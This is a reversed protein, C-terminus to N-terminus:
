NKIQHFKILDKFIRKIASKLQSNKYEEHSAEGATNKLHSEYDTVQIEFPYFFRIDRSLQSLDMKLVKKVLENESDMSKAIKRLGTMQKVIPNRYVILQRCTFQVSRYEQSSHINKKNEHSNESPKESHDNSEKSSNERDITCKKIEQEARALFHGESWNERMCLKMLSYYRRRFKQLDFITNISRSPKINQPLFVYQEQLFKIVRLVDFKTKTVFRLGVRDFVEEAVLEPKHLLKIIVSERSKKAKTEFTQLPIASALSDSSGLYLQGQEGGEGRFIYKYFRDFIQQQIVGFYNTRLDKDAHLVTHMVKLVVASWLKLDISKNAHYGAAMKLLDTLDSIALIENPIHLDLGEHHGEKLFYRRIFQLSEQFFGFIESKLIPDNPDFGYGEFFMIIDDTSHIPSMISDSDLASQGGLVVKYLEWNLKHQSLFNPRNLSM